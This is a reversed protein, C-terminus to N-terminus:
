ASRYYLSEIKWQSGTKVYVADFRGREWRREAVCGQMRAMRAATSDGQLPVCLEVEINFTATARTDGQLTVADNRQQEASQRYARHIVPAEQHRYQLALVKIIDAKGAAKVGSLNVTGRDDFLDAAAEYQENEVLSTFALHLHRVAERHEQLLLQQHLAESTQEQPMPSDAALASAAVTTAMGAGLAAGGQALFARRSNQTRKGTM